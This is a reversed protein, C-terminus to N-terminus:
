NDKKQATYHDGFAGRFVPRQKHGAVAEIRAKRKGRPGMGRRMSKDTVGSSFTVFVLVSSIV